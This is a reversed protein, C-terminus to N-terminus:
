NWLKYNAVGPIFAFMLAILLIVGVIALLPMRAPEPFFKTIAWHALYAGVCFCLLFLLFGLVTM